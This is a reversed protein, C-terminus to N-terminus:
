SEYLKGVNSDRYDIAFISGMNDFLSKFTQAFLSSTVEAVDTSMAKSINSIQMQPQYKSISLLAFM